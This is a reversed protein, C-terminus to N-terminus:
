VALNERSSAWPPAFDPRHIWHLLCLPPASRSRSRRLTSPPAPPKTGASVPAPPAGIDGNTVTGKGPVLCKTYGQWEPLYPRRACGKIQVETYQWLLQWRRSLGAPGGSRAGRGGEYEGGGGSRLPAPPPGDGRGVRRVAARG